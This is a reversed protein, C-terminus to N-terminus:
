RREGKGWVQETEELWVSNSNTCSVLNSPLSPSGNTRAHLDLHGTQKFTSRSASRPWSRRSHTQRSFPSHEEPHSPLSHHLTPSISFKILVMPNSSCSIIDMHQFPVTLIGRLCPRGRTQQKATLTRGADARGTWWPVPPARCISKMIAWFGGLPGPPNTPFSNLDLAQYPFFFGKWRKWVDSFSDPKEQHHFLWPQPSVERGVGPAVTPSINPLAM